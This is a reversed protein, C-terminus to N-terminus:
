IEDKLKLSWNFGGLYHLAASSSPHHSHIQCHLAELSSSSFQAFSPDVVGHLIPPPLCFSSEVVWSRVITWKQWWNLENAHGKKEKLFYYWVGATRSSWNDVLVLSCSIRYEKPDVWFLHYTFEQSIIYIEKLKHQDECTIEKQGSIQRSNHFKKSLHFHKTISTVVVTLFHQQEYKSWTLYVEKKTKIKKCSDYIYRM